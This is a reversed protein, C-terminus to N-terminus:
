ILDAPQQSGGLHQSWSQHGGPWYLVYNGVVCGVARSLGSHGVSCYAGLQVFKHKGPASVAGCAGCGTVVVLTTKKRM